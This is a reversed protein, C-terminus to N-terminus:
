LKKLSQLNESSIYVNATDQMKDNAIWVKFLCTSFFHKMIQFSQLKQVTSIILMMCRLCSYLLKQKKKWKVWIYIIFMKPVHRQKLGSHIFFHLALFVCSFSRAMSPQSRDNHCPLLKSEPRSEWCCHEHLFSSMEVLLIFMRLFFPKKIQDKLHKINCM